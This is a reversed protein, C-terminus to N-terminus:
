ASVSRTKPDAQYSELLHEINRKFLESAHETLVTNKAIAHGLYLNYLEYAACQADLEPHFIGSEIGQVIKHKIYSFLRNHQETVKTHIPSDTHCNFEVLAKIFPCTSHPENFLERTWDAWISFLMKLQVLPDQHRAPAVVHLMFQDECYDLIALQMDEKSDFHSILGSRSLGCLKAMSGITVEILGYQSSFRMGQELITQRTREGKNM